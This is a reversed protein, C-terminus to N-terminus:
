NGLINKLFFVIPSFDGPDIGDTNPSNFPALITVNQVTAHSNMCFFLTEPRGKIM